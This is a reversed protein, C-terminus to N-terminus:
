ISEATQLAASFSERIQKESLKASRIITSVAAPRVVHKTAVIVRGDIMAQNARDVFDASFTFRKVAVSM